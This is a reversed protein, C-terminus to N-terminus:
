RFCSARRSQCRRSRQRCLISNWEDDTSDALPHACHHRCVAGSHRSEGHEAIVGDIVADTDARSTVDYRRYEIGRGMDEKRRPRHGGCPAGAAKFASAIARGMGGAGGTILAVQGELSRRDM